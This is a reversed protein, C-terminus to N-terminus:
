VTSDDNKKNERRFLFDSSAQLLGCCACLLAEESCEICIIRSSYHFQNRITQLKPRRKKNESVARAPFCAPCRGNQDFSAPLFPYLLILCTLDMRPSIRCFSITRKQTRFCKVQGFQAHDNCLCGKSSSFPLFSSM